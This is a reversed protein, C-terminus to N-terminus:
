TRVLALHRQSLDLQRQEQSSLHAKDRARGSEDPQVVLRNLPMGQQQQRWLSSTHSYSLSSDDVDKIAVTAPFSSPRSTNTGPLPRSPKHSLKLLAEPLPDRWPDEVHSDEHRPSHAAHRVDGHQAAFSSPHQEAAGIARHSKLGMINPSQTEVPPPLSPPSSPVPLCPVQDDPKPSLPRDSALHGANDLPQLSPAEAALGINKSSLGGAAQMANLVNGTVVQNFGSPKPVHGAAPATVKGDETYQSSQFAAQTPPSQQATDASLQSTPAATIHSLEAVYPIVSPASSDKSRTPDHPPQNM